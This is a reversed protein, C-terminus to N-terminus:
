VQALCHVSTKDVGLRCRELMKVGRVCVRLGKIADRVAMGGADEDDLWEWASAKASALAEVAAIRSQLFKERVGGGAGAAGVGRVLTLARHLHMCAKGLEGACSALEARSLCLLSSVWSRMRSSELRELLMGLLTGAIGHSGYALAWRATKFGEWADEKLMHVCTPKLVEECEEWDMVTGMGVKLACRVLMAKTRGRAGGIMALIAARVEASAQPCVAACAALHDCIAWLVDMDTGSGSLSRRSAVADDRFEKHPGDGESNAEAAEHGAEETKRSVGGLTALIAQATGSALSPTSRLLPPLSAMLSLDATELPPATPLLKQACKVVQLPDSM